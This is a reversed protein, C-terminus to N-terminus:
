TFFLNYLLGSILLLGDPNCAARLLVRFRGFSEVPPSDTEVREISWSEAV